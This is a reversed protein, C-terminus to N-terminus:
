WSSYDSWNFVFPIRKWTDTDVCIYLYNSDIALQGTTGVSSDTAPILASSTLSPSVQIIALYVQQLWADVEPNGTQPPPAILM